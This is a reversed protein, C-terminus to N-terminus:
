YMTTQFTSFNFICIPFGEEGVYVVVVVIFLNVLQWNDWYLTGCKM